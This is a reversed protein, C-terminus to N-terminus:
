RPSRVPRKEPEHPTAFKAAAPVNMSGTALKLRGSGEESMARRVANLRAIQEYVAIRHHGFTQNKPTPEFALMM